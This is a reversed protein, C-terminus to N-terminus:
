RLEMDLSFGYMIKKATVLGLDDAKSECDQKFKGRIKEAKDSRDAVGMLKSHEFQLDLVTKFSSAKQFGMHVYLEDIFDKALRITGTFSISLNLNRYTAQINKLDFDAVIGNIPKYINEKERITLECLYINDESIKYTAYFGRHCGTHIMVPEMDCQKPSFLGNGELGILSYRGGRFIFTDEIQATM